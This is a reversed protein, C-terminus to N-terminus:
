RYIVQDREQGVGIYRVPADLEEEVFEIFSRANAPLDSYRRVDSIDNSWTPLKEYVPTSQEQKYGANAATSYTKGKREHDVCVLVTKGYRSVWDLKSIAIETVGNAMIARRVIALDLYGLDRPRGTTSGNEADSTGNGALVIRNRDKVKLSEADKITIVAGSKLTIKKSM